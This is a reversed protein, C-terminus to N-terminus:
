KQIMRVLRDNSLISRQETLLWCATQKHIFKKRGAIEIEFYSKIFEPQVTDFVRVGTLTETQVDDFSKKSYTETTESEEKDIDYKSNSIEDTEQLLDSFDMSNMKTKLLQKIYDNFENMSRLKEENISKTIGFGFLLNTADNFARSVVTEIMKINLFSTDQITSTFSKFKKAQKHHKPFQLSCNNSTFENKTKISNLISLKQVRHLFEQVSFNVVSSFAGSMSRASRFMGECPQSSFLHINTAERPLKNEIVLLILYTLQHANIEISYYANNTIFFQNKSCQKQRKSTPHNLASLATDLEDISTNHLWFYWCRCIFVSFWAHYLRDMLNTEKDIYAIMISRILRLYMITGQSDPVNVLSKIVSDSCIKVCANFNQRDHLFIDSKLLGHQLKSVKRILISLHDISVGNHGVILTATRSLLRNRLKTCLHTADQFCLFLHRDGLFYWNWEKPINIHFADKHSNLQINPLSGFWGTILRMARLYKPDGDTSFGVIRINRSWNEEFIWLWRRIIDISECRNTTGYACLLFPIPVIDNQTIPQIMHINILPARDENAFWQRLQEFYDTQYHLKIPIGNKLPISFGIFSDTFTDYSIKKIVTTCDESVFAITTKLSNIHKMLHDFRFEAENIRLEKGLQLRHLTAISPLIGPINLRIFEYAMRGGLIYFATAFQLIHENHRYANKSSCLNKSLNDLFSALFSVHESQNETSRDDLIEYLHVLSKLISHKELFRSSLIVHESSILEISYQHDNNIQQLDQIFSELSHRIGWKVELFGNDHQFALKKKIVRLQETNFELWNLLNEVGLLSQASSIGLIKMFELVDKGCREEVLQYFKNDSYTLVNYPVTRYM